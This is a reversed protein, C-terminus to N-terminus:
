GCRHFDTYRRKCVSEISPVGLKKGDLGIPCDCTSAISVTIADAARQKTHNAWCNLPHQELSPTLDHVFSRSRHGRTDFLCICHGSYVSGNLLIEIHSQGIWGLPLPQGQIAQTNAYRQSLEKIISGTHDTSQDDLILIEFNDYKQALFGEICAGINAEENRAPILVSVFPGNRYNDARKLMPATAANFLVVMLVVTLLGVSIILWTFLIM